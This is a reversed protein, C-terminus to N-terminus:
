DEELGSYCKLTQRGGLVYRVGYAIPTNDHKIFFRRLVLLPTSERLSLRAATDASAAEASVEMRTHFAFSSVKHAVIEPFVAYKIEEEITPQGRQYPLYKFDLAYPGRSDKLVREVMIVSKENSLALAAASSSRPLIASM